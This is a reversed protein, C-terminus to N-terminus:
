LLKVTVSEGFTGTNSGPRTHRFAAGGAQDGLLIRVIRESAQGDGFPSVDRVMADYAAENTLLDNAASIIRYPDTGVLKAVGTEVAEPRETVDRLVLVPKGLTPAEEQIGGSDTLVFHCRQLAQLFEFYPYPERLEIRPHDGLIKGVPERVSPNPHVPFVVKVDPHDDAIAKLAYCVRRVPKGFSERRHLTVLIEKRGNPSVTEPARRNSRLIMNLADIVTNGTVHITEADKGEKLLNERAWPTPAFHWEASVATVRRNLEEPFPVFKDSTRLGAEVHAVRVGRFSAALAGAMSTTTDGQVVVVDPTEAELIPDLGSIVSSAIHAITQRERMIDIDFKPRLGFVTTMQRTFERHQGTSVLVTEVEDDHKGFETIVPALKVIEPRTGFLIMVKM